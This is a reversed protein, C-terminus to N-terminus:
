LDISGIALDLSHRRIVHRKFLLNSLEAILNSREIFLDVGSLTMGYLLFM